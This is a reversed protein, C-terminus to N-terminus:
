HRFSSATGSHVLPPTRRKREWRSLISTLSFARLSKSSETVVLGRLKDGEGQEEGESPSFLRKV